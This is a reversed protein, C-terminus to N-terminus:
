NDTKNQKIHCKQLMKNIKKEWRKRVERQEQSNDERNEAPVVISPSRNQKRQQKKGMSPTPITKQKRRRYVSQFETEEPSSFAVDKPRRSTDDSIRCKSEPRITREQATPIEQIHSTEEPKQLLANTTSRKVQKWHTDQRCFWCRTPRGPLTV